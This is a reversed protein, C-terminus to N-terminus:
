EVGNPHSLTYSVFEKADAIVAELEQRTPKHDMKGRAQLELPVEDGYKLALAKEYRTLMDIKDRWANCYACQLNCNQDDYRLIKRGRGIYHGLNAAANWKGEIRNPQRVTLTLVTLKRGCTICDGFFSDGRFESDRLRVYRSFWTDAEKTLQPITKRKPLSKRKLAQLPSLPRKAKKFM